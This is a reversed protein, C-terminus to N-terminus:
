LSSALGAPIAGAADHLRWRAAAGALEPALHRQVRALAEACSGSYARLATSTM